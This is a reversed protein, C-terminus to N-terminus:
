GRSMRGGRRGYEPGRHAIQNLVARQAPTLVQELTATAEALRGMKDAMRAMRDAKFRLAAAADADLPPRQRPGEALSQVTAVYQRWAPQQSPTIELRNAMRDLRDSILEHKRQQLRDHMQGAPQVAQDGFAALPLVALSGGLLAAALSARIPKMIPNEMHNFSLRMEFWLHLELM